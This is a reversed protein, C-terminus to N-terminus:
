MLHIHSRPNHVYIEIGFNIQITKMRIVQVLPYYCQEMQEPTMENTMTYTTTIQEDKIFPKIVEMAKDEMTKRAEKLERARNLHEDAASDNPASWAMELLTYIPVQFCEFM